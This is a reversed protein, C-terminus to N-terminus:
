HFFFYIGGNQAPPENIPRIAKHGMHFDIPLYLKAMHWVRPAHPLQKKGTDGQVHRRITIGLGTGSEANDAYFFSFGNEIEVGGAAIVHRRMQHIM